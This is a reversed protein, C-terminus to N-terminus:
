RLWLCLRRVNAWLRAHFQTYRYLIRLSYDNGFIMNFLIFRVFWSYGYWTTISSFIDDPIYEFKGFKNKRTHLIFGPFHWYLMAKKLDIQMKPHLALKESGITLYHEGFVKFLDYGGTAGSRAYIVPKNAIYFNQGCGLLTYIWEYHALWTGAYRETNANQTLDFYRKKNVIVASLFSLVGNARLAFQEATVRRFQFNPKKLRFIELESFFYKPPIFILDCDNSSLLKLVREVVGDLLLDDDSFIWVFQTSAAKFVSLFNGEMGLNESHRAYKISPHEFSDVVSRTDDSSCNDSVILEIQNWGHPIAEIQRVISGLSHKLSAARNFTPIAITLIPPMNTNM